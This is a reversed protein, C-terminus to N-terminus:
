YDMINGDPFVKRLKNFSSGITWIHNQKVFLPKGDKSLKNIQMLLESTEDQNLKKNYEIPDLPKGQNIIQKNIEYITGLQVKAM